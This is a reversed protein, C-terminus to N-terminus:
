LYCYPPKEFVLLQTAMRDLLGVGPCMDLDFYLKFLYMCGKNTALSNVIALVPFCGLHGNVSSHIFFIHYVCVFCSNATLFLSIIANVAVHIARSIIISLLALWFSFSLSKGPPGTTLFRGASAPSMPKSGQDLFIECAVPCSRLRHAQLRHEAVLSGVAILLECVVVFLLGGESCGSFAVFVWHLRFLYIFNLFCLCLCIGHSIM